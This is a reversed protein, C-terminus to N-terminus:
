IDYHISYKKPKPKTQVVRSSGSHTPQFNPPINEPQPPATALVNFDKPSSEEMDKQSNWRKLTFISPKKRIKEAM